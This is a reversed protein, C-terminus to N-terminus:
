KGRGGGSSGSSSHSSAGGSFGSSGGRSFGSSGGSVGRSGSGTFSSPHSSASGSAGSSSSHRSDASHASASHSTHESQKVAARDTKGDKVEVVTEGSVKATAESDKVQVKKAEDVPQTRKFNDEDFVRIAPRTVVAKSQVSKTGSGLKLVGAALPPPTPPHIRPPRRFPPYIVPPYVYGYFNPPYFFLSNFCLGPAASFWYPQGPYYFYPSGWFYNSQCIDGFGYGVFGSSPSILGNGNSPSSAALYNDRSQSWQDLEDGVVGDQLDYEQPDNAALTFTEKGEVEVNQGSEHDHVEATGKWVALELPDSNISLIRYRGSHKFLINKNHVDVALFGASPKEVYFEAEGQDLDVRTIANGSSLRALQSFTVETEPALRMTSGDEFRVEALSDTSTSLVNGEIVPANITVNQNNLRVTGSIYTVSVMRAHSDDARGSPSACVMLLLSVSSLLVKARNM